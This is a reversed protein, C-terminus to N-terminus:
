TSTRGRREHDICSHNRRRKRWRWIENMRPRAMRRSCTRFKTCFTVPISSFISFAAGLFGLAVELSLPKLRSVVGDLTERVLLMFLSAISAALGGEGPSIPLFMDGSSSNSSVWSTSYPICKVNVVPISGSIRKTHAAAAITTGWRQQFFFM